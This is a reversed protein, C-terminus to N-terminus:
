RASVNFACCKNRNIRKNKQEKIHPSSVGGDTPRNLASVESLGSQGGPGGWRTSKQCRRRRCKINLDGATSRVLLVIAAVGLAVSSIPRNCSDSSSVSCSQFEGDWRRVFGAVCSAVADASLVCFRSVLGESSWSSARSIASRFSNCVTLFTLLAMSPTRALRSLALPFM